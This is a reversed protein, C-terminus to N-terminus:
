EMSRVQTLTAVIGVGLDVDADVALGTVVLLRVVVDSNGCAIGLQTPINLMTFLHSVLIHQQGEPCAVADRV